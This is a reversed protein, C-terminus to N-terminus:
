YSLAKYGLLKLDRVRPALTSGAPSRPVSSAKSAKSAKSTSAKSAKSTSAKSAKRSCPVSSAKSAKSTCFYWYVSSVHTALQQCAKGAAPVSSAKSAKSTCFYKFLCSVCLDPAKTSLLALLSLVLQRCSSM